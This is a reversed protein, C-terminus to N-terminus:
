PCSAIVSPKRRCACDNMWATRVPVSGTAVPSCPRAASRMESAASWAICVPVPTSGLASDQCGSPRRAESTRSQPSPGPRRRRPWASQRGGIRDLGLCSTSRHPSLSINTLKSLRAWGHGARHAPRRSAAPRSCPWVGGGAPARACPGPMGVGSQGALPEPKSRHMIQRAKSASNRPRGCDRLRNMVLTAQSMSPLGSM